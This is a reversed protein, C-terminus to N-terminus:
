SPLNNCGQIRQTLTHGIFKLINLYATDRCMVWVNEHLSISPGRKRDERKTDGHRERKRQPRKRGQKIKLKGGRKIVLSGMTM